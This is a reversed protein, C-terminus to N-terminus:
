PTGTRCIIRTGRTNPIRRAIQEEMFSKGEPSLIVIAADPQNENAVVLESVITFIKSSWGLILTHAHEAVISRGGQLEEVRRNIVSALVAILSGAILVGGLTVFLSILRFPWGVDSGMTGPDLARLLGLWFAEGFKLDRGTNPDPVGLAAALTAAAFILALTIAGLWLILSTSGRSLTNDFRYRLRQRKSFAKKQDRRSSM